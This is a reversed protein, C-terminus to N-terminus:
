TVLHLPFRYSAKIGTSKALVRVWTKAFTKFKFSREIGEGSSILNWRGGESALLQLLKPALVTEDSGAAFRPRPVDAMTAATRLRQAALKPGLCSPRLLASCFRRALVRQRVPPSPVGTSAQRLAHVYCPWATFRNMSLATTEDRRRSTCISTVTAERSAAVFPLTEPFTSDFHRTIHHAWRKIRKQWRWQSYAAEGAAKPTAALLPSRVVGSFWFGYPTAARMFGRM